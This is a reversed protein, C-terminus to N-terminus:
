KIKIFFMSLPFVQVYFCLIARFLLIRSLTFIRVVLTMKLTCNIASDTHIAQFCRSDPCIFFGELQIVNRTICIMLRTSNLKTAYSIIM